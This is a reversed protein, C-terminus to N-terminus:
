HRRGAGLELARGTAAVRVRAVALAEVVADGLATLQHGELLGAGRPCHEVWLVLEAYPGLRHGLALVVVFVLCVLRQWVLGFGGQLRQGGLAGRCQGNLQM